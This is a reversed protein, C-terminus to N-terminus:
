NARNFLNDNLLNISIVNELLIKPNIIMKASNLKSSKYLYKAKKFPHLPFPSNKINYMYIM